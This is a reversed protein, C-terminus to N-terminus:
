VEGNIKSQLLRAVIDTTSEKTNINIYTNGQPTEEKVPSSLKSKRIKEISELVNAIDKYGQSLIKVSQNVSNVLEAFSTIMPARADDDTGLLDLTLVNIIKRGNTVTERLTDRTFKFDDVLLELSIVDTTLFDLEQSYLQVDRTKADIFDTIENSCVLEAQGFVTNLSNIKDIMIDAKSEVANDL